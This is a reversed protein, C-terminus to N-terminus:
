GNSIQLWKTPGVIKEKGDVRQFILKYFAVDFLNYTTGLDQKKFKM